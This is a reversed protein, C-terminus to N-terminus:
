LISSYNSSCAQGKAEFIPASAVLPELVDEFNAWRYL